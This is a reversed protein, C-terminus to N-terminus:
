MYSHCYVFIFSAQVKWLKFVLSYQYLLIIKRRAYQRSKLAICGTKYNWVTIFFFVCQGGITVRARSRKMGYAKFYPPYM